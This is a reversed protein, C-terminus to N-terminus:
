KGNKPKGINQLAMQVQKFLEPNEMLAKATQLAQNEADVREIAEQANPVDMAEALDLRGYVGERKLMLAKNARYDPDTSSDTTMAYRVNLNVNPSFINIYYVDIMSEQMPHNLFFAVNDPTDTQQEEQAAETVEKGTYTNGQEDVFGMEKHIKVDNEKEFARRLKGMLEMQGQMEQPTEPMPVEAIDLLMAMYKTETLRKNIPIYKFNSKPDTIPIFDEDTDLLMIGRVVKKWFETLCVDIMIDKRGHSQRDKAILAQVTEKAIQKSPMEGQSASHLAASDQLWSLVMEILFTIGQNIQQPFYINKIGPAAGGFDLAHQIETAYQQWQQPDVDAIPYNSRRANELFATVLLSLLDELQQYMKIDGFPYLRQESVINQMPTLNFGGLINYDFYFVGNGEEYLAYYCRDKDKTELCFQSLIPDRLKLEWEQKSLEEIKRSEPNHFLYTEHPFKINVLYFTAYRKQTVGQEQYANDYDNSNYVMMSPNFYPYGAYEQKAKDEEVLFRKSIISATKFMMGRSRSDVLVDRASVEDIKFKDIGLRAHDYTLELWHLGKSFCSDIAPFYILNKVDYTDEIYQLRAKIVRAFAKDTPNRPTISITRQTNVFQGITSEHNPRSRPVKVILPQKEDSNMTKSVADQLQQIPSDDYGSVTYNGNLREDVENMESVYTVHKANAEFISDRVIKTLAQREEDVDLNYPLEIGDEIQENM